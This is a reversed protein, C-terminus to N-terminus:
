GKHMNCFDSAQKKETLTKWISRDTDWSQTWMLKTSLLLNLHGPFQNLFGTETGGTIYGTKNGKM